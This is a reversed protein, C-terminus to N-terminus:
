LFSLMQASSHHLPTSVFRLAKMEKKRNNREYVAKMEGFEAYSNEM